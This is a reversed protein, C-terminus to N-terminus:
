IVEAEEMKIWGKSGNEIQVEIWEGVQDTKLVKAGEHIVFLLASKEDPSSKVNCSPQIIILSRNDLIYNKHSWAAFSAILFLVFMSFSIYLAWKRIPISNTFLFWLVLVLVAVFLVITLIAWSNVNFMFVINWWWDVIFITPKLEVKDITKQKALNLNYLLDVNNADMKKAREYWLISKAIENQNYYCNGLNYCLEFSIIGNKYISLYHSTAKDFHGEKYEKNAKNFLSNENQSFGTSIPFLNLILLFRLVLLVNSNM